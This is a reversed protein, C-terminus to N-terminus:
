HQPRLIINFGEGIRFGQESTICGKLAVEGLDSGDPGRLGIKWSLDKEQFPGVDITASNDTFLFPQNTEAYSVDIAMGPAIASGDDRRLDATLYCVEDVHPQRVLAYISAAIAIAISVGLAWRWPRRRRASIKAVVSLVLAELNGETHPFTVVGVYPPISKEPPQEIIVGLVHGSPNPWRAEAFELETHAYSGKEVSHPSILFIFLDANAIERRIEGDYAEGARLSDRDFFVTHRDGRLRVAISKAIATDERAYSIFIKL